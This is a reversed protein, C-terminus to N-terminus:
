IALEVDPFEAEEAKTLPKIFPRHQEPAISTLRELRPVSRVLQFTKDKLLDVGRGTVASIFVCDVDKPMAERLREEEEEEEEEHIVDCKTIVLLRPKQLLQPSHAEVERLLLQYTDAISDSDVAVLFLLVANREIHKLFQTGLGRGESAGEILGPIDAVTFSEGNYYPVVGLQPILTTFPYDAIKPRAASIVSLLTSKGANPLGVLGVDGLLKLELRVWGGEGPSGPKAFTPAQRVSTKFRENGWGGKGGHMLTAEQGEYLIEALTQRSKLDTVITGLPVDVYMDAGDSGRCSCGGGKEGDEATILKLHRLHQLTTQKRTGRLVVNGGNGGDGGDPGGKPVFKEKRFSVKGDGGKGARIELTMDDVMNVEKSSSLAFSFRAAPVQEGTLCFITGSQNNSFIHWIVLTMISVTGFLVVAWQSIPLTILTGSIHRHSFGITTITRPHMTRPSYGHPFGRPIFIKQPAQSTVVFQKSTFSSWASHDVSCNFSLIVILIGVVCQRALDSM